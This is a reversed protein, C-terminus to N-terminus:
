CWRATMFAQAAPSSKTTETSCGVRLNSGDGSIQLRFPIDQGNFTITADWLGALSQANSSQAVAASAIALVLAALFKSKM